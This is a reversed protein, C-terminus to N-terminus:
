EPMLDIILTWINDYHKYTKLTYESYLIQTQPFMRAHEVTNIGAATARIILTPDYTETGGTDWSEKRIYDDYGKFFYLLKGEETWPDIVEDVEHSIRYYYVKGGNESMEIRHLVDNFLYAVLSTWAGQFAGQAFDEGALAASFGGSAAGLAMRGELSELGSGKAIGASVAGILAGHWIDGGTMAANAAGSVAGAAAHVAIQAAPGMSSTPAHILNGAGYFLAGSLAASLGGVLAGHFMGAMVDGGNMSANYAGMLAGIIAGVIIATEIGYHGTPDVYRLPNNLVYAYRNLSQPNTWDPVITDATIFRGLVPDYLRANYNYLEFETDYEQGTFRYVSTWVGGEYAKRFLTAGYPLYGIEEVVVGSDNTVLASSGLHDGHTYYAQGGRVSAIRKGAAHIHIITQGGRIEMLGGVYITTGASSAKRVRNGEGDYFLQSSRGQFTMETPMNDQNYTVDRQGVSGHV